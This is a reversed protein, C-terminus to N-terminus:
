MKGSGDLLSTDLTGDIDLDTENQGVLSYFTDPREVGETPKLMYAGNKCVKKSYHCHAGVWDDIGNKRRLLFKEPNNGLAECADGVTHAGQCFAAQGDNCRENIMQDKWARCMLSDDTPFVMQQLRAKQIEPDSHECLGRMGPDDKGRAVCYRYVHNMRHQCLRCSGWDCELRAIIDYMRTGAVDATDITGISADLLYNCLEPQGDIYGRGIESKDVKTTVRPHTLDMATKGIFLANPSLAIAEEVTLDHTPQTVNTEPYPDLINKKMEEIKTMSDAQNSAELAADDVSDGRGSYQAGVTALSALALVLLASSTM